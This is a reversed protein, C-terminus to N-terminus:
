ASRLGYPTEGIHISRIRASGSVGVEFTDSRYGSPLRFIDSTYLLGQFVLEKNVWLRFTVPLASPLDLKYKTGFDGNVMLANFAGSPRVLTGTADYYDSPGNVPGLQVSYNWIVQNFPPVTANYANINDLEDNPPTYDAIVRAAGLNMYDKTVIVKSKWELPALPQDPKDWQSINGRTDSTFYFANDQQDVYASSYKYNTQVFFGGIRDDKEFIFGGNSHSAFYKGNHFKAVITSPDLFVDWTDWDHVLKTLLDMGGQTSSSYVAIGGHTAFAVGYGMNVISRKSLCPYPTDIRNTTITAPNSGTIIYPYDKTLILIMGMAVSIGVIDAELTVAYKEPWAHPLGPESLYVKNGVFGVFMGNQVATLGQLGEPPPDYNDTILIDFLNSGDFDDVFNYTGDGWYRATYTSLEAIDHYMTGTVTAEAVNAGTQAYEFTMDNVVNTVIGGTINFSTNSCTLKFRDGEGLNHHSPITVRVVNSTRSIKTIASPFWLTTLRYFETDSVSSLTRYLRIGRVFTKGAPPASPLGSVTVTQGDKIYVSDSPDSAISEEDWPTIWTYVYSRPITGGSLTVKGTTNATASVEAGPSFYTFTTPNIVSVEASTANFTLPITGTFGTISAKNGSRLGHATGTVITATDGTDRSFSSTVASPAASVTLSPKTTPLPLGLTYYDNPYPAGSSTALDYNSVKPVGDGTYYFRQEGDENSSGIVVDVDNLWSLWVLAKTVPNRLASLTKIEGNRNTGDVIVPARYPVLDGSYLKANVTVQAAADPLLEPSIKPAEGLFKVLKVAAM